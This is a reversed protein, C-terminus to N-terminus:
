FYYLATINNTFIAWPNDGVATGFQSQSAKTTTSAAAVMTMPDTFADQTVKVSDTQFLLGVSGQLALQPIGIFGFQIEAGARAGIDFHTGSFHLTGANQVGMVDKPTNSASATGFTLEPIIQFSFHKSSALALPVGGHIMFVTPVALDQQAGANPTFSQSAVSLGIGADIGIMPDIWYRIGVIPAAVAAITPAGTGAVGSGISMTTRGLFGVGVHGVVGDHDSGNPDPAPAAAPLAMGVQAQAAPAPAAPAPAAPAPAADAPAPAAPAPAPAQAFAAPAATLTACASLIGISSFKVIRM